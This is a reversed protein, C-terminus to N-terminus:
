NIIKFSATYPSQSTAELNRVGVAIDDCGQGHDFSGGSSGECGVRSVLEISREEILLWLVCFGDFGVEEEDLLFGYRRAHTGCDFMEFCLTTAQSTETAEMYSKNVM